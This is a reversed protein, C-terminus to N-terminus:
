KNKHYSKPKKPKKHKNFKVKKLAKKFEKNKHKGKKVFLITDEGTFPTGDNLEGSLTLEVTQGDAVKGKAAVIDKTKFILVLDEYGDAGLKM